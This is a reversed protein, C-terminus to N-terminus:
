ASPVKRKRGFTAKAHAHSIGLIDAVARTCSDCYFLGSRACDPCPSLLGLRKRTEVIRELMADVRM